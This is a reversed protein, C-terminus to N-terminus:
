FHQLQNNGRVFNSWTYKNEHLINAFSKLQLQACICIYLLKMWFIYKYICKIEDNM